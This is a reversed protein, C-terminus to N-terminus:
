FGKPQEETLELLYGSPDKVVFFRHGLTQLDSDLVEIGSNMANEYYRDFQTLRIVFVVGWGLSKPQSGLRYPDGTALRDHGHIGLRVGPLEFEAYGGALRSTRVPELEFLQRYFEVTAKPDRAALMILAFRPRERPREFSNAQLRGIIESQTRRIRRADVFSQRERLYDSKQSDGRAQLIAKSVNIYRELERRVLPDHWVNGLFRLAREDERWLQGYTSFYDSAATPESEKGPYWISQRFFEEGLLTPAIYLNEYFGGRLYAVAEDIEGCRFSALAQNFLEATSLREAVM